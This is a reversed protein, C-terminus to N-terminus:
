IIFIEILTWFSIFAFIHSDLRDFVGGHGPLLNSFDKKHYARKIKSFTLDGFPSALASIPIIFLMGWAQVFQNSNSSAFGTDTFGFLILFFIFGVTVSSILGIMFGELTKNPSINPFIHNEGYKKGGYYAAIDSVVPILIILFVVQWGGDIISKTFSELFWYFLLSMILAVVSDKFSVSTFVLSSLFVLVGILIVNKSDLFKLWNPTYPVFSIIPALESWSFTFFTLGFIIALPLFLVLLQEKSTERDKPNIFKVAEYIAYILLLLLAIQFLISYIEFIVGIITIDYFVVPGLAAFFVSPIIILLLIISTKARKGSEKLFKNKIKRKSNTTKKTVNTKELEKTSNNNIKKEVM